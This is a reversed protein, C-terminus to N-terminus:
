AVKGRADVHWVDEVVGDRVATVRVHLNFTAWGNPIVFELRDGVEVPDTAESVDVFGHESSKRFFSVDERGVPVPDAGDIYSIAKSGADVIARDRTPKAIVTTLFTAACDARDVHPAHDLLDADNFVYRGPDLETIVNQKAMSPATASAGSVVRDVLYGAGELAEATAELDSAVDECGEELESQTEGFYPVHGDHGLIGNFAINPQSDIYEVLDVAAEGPQVGMRRLGVDVEVVIDITVDHREAAAQLPAVNDQGDAMVAFHDIQEAVWCLRDLKAETVVPCVLLIDEIGYRAMVEAEGLKQCLFGGDFVEQQRRAVGPMKHSKVHSRVSIDHEDAIDRFYQLNREMVDLDVVVSPTPIDNVSQGLSPQMEPFAPNVM